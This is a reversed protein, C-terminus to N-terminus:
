HNEIKWGGQISVDRQKNETLSKYALEVREYGITSNEEAHGHPISLGIFLITYGFKM